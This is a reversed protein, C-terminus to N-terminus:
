NKAIKWLYSFYYNLARVHNINNIIIINPTETEESLIIKDKLITISTENGAGELSKIEIHANRINSEWFEKNKHSCIIQGPIRSERLKNLYHPYEYKLINFINLRGGGGLTQFQSSNIMEFLYKKLAQKGEYIEIHSKKQREQKLKQLENVVSKAKNTQSDLDELIKKPEEAFFIKKNKQMSLYVLGRKTLSQLINYVFSRDISIDKAIQGASRGPNRLLLVYVKAQNQTFGCDILSNIDM